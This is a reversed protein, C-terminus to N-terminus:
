VGMDHLIKEFQQLVKPAFNVATHWVTQLSIKDYGHVLRHRMGIIKSWDVEPHQARVDKPIRNAAEGLVMFQRIVADHHLKSTRFGTFELGDIYEGISQAADRIDMCSVKFNRLM